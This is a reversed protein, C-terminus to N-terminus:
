LKRFPASRSQEVGVAYEFGLEILEYPATLKTQGGPRLRFASVFPEPERLGDGLVLDGKLRAHDQELLSLGLCELLLGCGRWAVATM